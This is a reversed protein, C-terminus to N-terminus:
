MNCMAEVVVEFGENAFRKKTSTKPNGGVYGHNMRDDFAGCRFRSRAFLFARATADVGAAGFAGDPSM